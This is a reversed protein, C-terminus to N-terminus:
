NKGYEDIDWDDFVEKEISERTKKHRKWSIGLFLLVAMVAGSIIFLYPRTKELLLPNINDRMEYEPYMIDNRDDSHGLGLAHGFEHKAIAYMNADGYQQWSYGQYNGVELVIDARVYKGDIVYPRCYGAVGDPAKEVEELNEVWKVNIDAGESSEVFKFDPDFNLHGNGGEDWYEVAKEIQKYYTPSYHEPVNEDNIYVTIPSHDWPNDSIGPSNEGGASTPLIFAVLILVTALILILKEM